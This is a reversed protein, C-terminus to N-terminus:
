ASVERIEIRVYDTGWRKWTKLVNITILGVEPNIAVAGKGTHITISIERKNARNKITFKANGNEGITIAQPSIIYRESAFRISYQGELRLDRSISKSEIDEGSGVAEGSIYPGVINIVVAVVLVVIVMILLIKKQM